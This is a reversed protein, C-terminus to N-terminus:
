KLKKIEALISKFDEIALSLEMVSGITACMKDPDAWRANGAGERNSSLHRGRICYALNDYRKLLENSITKQKDKSMVPM